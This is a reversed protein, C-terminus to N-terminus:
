VGVQQYAMVSLPIVIINGGETVPDEVYRTPNFNSNLAKGKLEFDSEIAGRVWADYKAKRDEADAEAPEFFLVVIFYDYQTIKQNSPLEKLDQDGTRLSVRIGRSETNYDFNRGLGKAIKGAFETLIDADALLQAVIQDQIETAKIPM